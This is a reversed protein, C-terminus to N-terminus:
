RRGLRTRSVGGKGSFSGRRNRGSDAALRSTLLCGGRDAAASLRAQAIGRVREHVGAPASARTRMFAIMPENLGSRDLRRLLPEFARDHKSRKLLCKPSAVVEVRFEVDDCSGCELLRSRVSRFDSTSM